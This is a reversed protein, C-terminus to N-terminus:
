LQEKMITFPPVLPLSQGFPPGAFASVHYSFSVVNEVFSRRLSHSKIVSGARQIKDSFPSCPV